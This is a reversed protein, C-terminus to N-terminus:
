FGLCPEGGPSLPLKVCIDSIICWSQGGCDLFPKPSGKALPFGGLAETRSASDGGQRYQLMFKAAFTDKKLNLACREVQYVPVEDIQPESFVGPTHDGEPGGHDDGRDRQGLIDRSCRKGLPATVTTGKEITLVGKDAEREMVM